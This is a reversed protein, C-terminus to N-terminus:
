TLKYRSFEIITEYGDEQNVRVKGKLKKSLIEILRSGFKTSQTNIEVSSPSIGNDAVLLHLIQKDEEWLKVKITGNDTNQFAYKISNTILENIILGLPIATEVDAFGIQVDCDIVIYKEESFYTDQLQNCLDNVYDSINISTLNDRTYLKQHILGMSEVRNRSDQLADLVMTDDEGDSQLSLLSSLIQLNNKVRHHIEKMLFDKEENKEKLVSTLKLKAQYRNLLAFGLAILIGIIGLGYYQEKKQKNILLEKRETEYKVKLEELAEDQNSTFLQESYEWNLKMYKFASDYQMLGEYSKAIYEPLESLFFLDNTRYITVLAEKSIAICQEYRGTHLYVQSLGNKVIMRMREEKPDISELCELFYKEAQEYMDFEMYFSALDNSALGLITTMGSKEAARLGKNFAAIAGTSDEQMRLGHGAFSWADWANIYDEAKEFREGALLGYEASQAIKSTFHFVRSIRLQGLAIGDNDKLEEMIALGGLIHKMSLEYDMNCFAYYGDQYMVEALGRQDGIERFLEEAVRNWKNIEDCERPTNYTKSLILAVYARYIQRNLSSPDDFEGMWYQLASDRDIAELELAHIGLDRDYGSSQGIAAQVSLLFLFIALITNTAIRTAQNTFLSNSTLLM